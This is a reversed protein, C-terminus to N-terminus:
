KSYKKVIAEVFEKGEDSNNLYGLKEMENRSEIWFKSSSQSLLLKKYEDPVCYNANSTVIFSVAYARLKKAWAIQKESGTLESFYTTLHKTDADWKEAMPHRETEAKQPISVIIGSQKVIEIVSNLLADDVITERATKQIFAVYKNLTHSDSEIFTSYGSFPSIVEIKGSENPTGNALRANFNELWEAASTGFLRNNRLADAINELKQEITEMRKEEKRAEAWAERLCESMEIESIKCGYETAASKRLEWARKMIQKKM